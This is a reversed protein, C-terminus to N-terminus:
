MVYVDRSKNWSAAACSPTDCVIDPNNRGEDGHEPEYGMYMVAFGHGHMHISHSRDNTVNAPLYTFMVM